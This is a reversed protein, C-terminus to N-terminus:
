ELYGLYDRQLDLVMDFAKEAALADTVVPDVLLAQLALSRSKELVARATLLNLSTQMLMLGRLGEPMEGVMDGHVGQKNVMAPIEVILEEPLNSIFGDNQINVAGEQRGLDAVIAEIIPIARHHETETSGHVLQEPARERSWKKYYEYFDLIGRHDVASHAWGIYEGFHSDTTIPLYGFKELIMKFLWREEWPRSSSKSKFGGGRPAGTGGYDKGPQHEFYAPARKRIDPYADAGSDTYRASLLISFHNLGGAVLELKEPSTELIAPVHERLSAIEHCLGIMRLEPCAMKIATAIRTIPNSLNLVWAHPAVRLIDRCIELIPPIIRLSHFLGGPGGNEGYVQTIGFQQPIRWDQEWLEFRDGVEISIICFDAGKLAKERNTTATLTFPLNNQKLHTRATKEVRLLADSDIDHLIIDAGELISSRFIDGVTSLGFIASGAGILVIRPAM